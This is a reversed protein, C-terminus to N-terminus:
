KSYLTVLTGNLLFSNERRLRKPHFQNGYHILRGRMENLLKNELGRELPTDPSIFLADYPSLDHGFFDKNHLMVNNFGFGMKMQTAKDHLFRNIEVGEANKCFLSAIMVVKGDGSGLDLFNRFQSLSLKKFASYVEDAPAANWFGKETSWMPLKGKKLLARYFLDYQRRIHQFKQEDM